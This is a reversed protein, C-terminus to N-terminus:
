WDVRGIWKDRNKAYWKITKRLGEEWSFNPTWGTLRNLKAYDVRLEEVESKGIRGRKGTDKNILKKSKWYGEERGIKIILNYWDGISITEGYGYVYVEGPNGFLAVNIHGMAGDEVFCFDRKPTLSGLEITDKDLAQTIITGTIFRPNQRPGYNNFMRTVVTPVGYASYFNRTLFDAAVKSTAYISQPNLPSKEDLILGGKKDFRYQNKMEPNVNGYEESTGATDLKFLDLDLDVITQLLNLTGLANTNFTEYSRRWSEGVHAQAGLHFIIPKEGGENKIIKLVEKIAQKDTLDGHHVTIKGRLHPINHLMGSSTARILIHVNSGYDVLKETLHSAVFGDAGTILVARGKLIKQIDRDTKKM